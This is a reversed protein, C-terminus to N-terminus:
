AKNEPLSVTEKKKAKGQFVMAMGGLAWMTGAFGILWGIVPIHTVIYYIVIGVVMAGIYAGRQLGGEKKHGKFIVHGLTFGAFITTLYVGVIYLALLVLGLPIGILTVLCIFIVAPGALLIVAGWGFSPGVRKTLNYAVNQTYKKFIATIVLGVVLAGVLGILLSFGLTGWGFGTWEKVKPALKTTEGLVLAGESISVDKDSRYELNGEIVSEPNLTLNGDNIYVTANGKVTDKLNVEAGGILLDNEIPSDVTVFAGGLYVSNGVSSSEQLEVSSGAAYINKGVQSGIRVFSGVARVSGTVEGTVTVDSGLALVSGTVNGTINITQGFAMIDGDVNGRININSGALIVDGNVDANLDIVNGAKIYNGEITDGEAVYINTNETDAAFVFFPLCLIIAGIAVFPVFKILKKM